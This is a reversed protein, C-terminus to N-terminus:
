RPQTNWVDLEVCPLELRAVVVEQAVTRNRVPVLPHSVWIEVSESRSHSQLIVELRRMRPQSGRRLALSLM